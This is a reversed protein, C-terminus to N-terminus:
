SQVARRLAEAAIRVATTRTGHALRGPDLTSTSALHRDYHLRVAGAGVDALIAAAGSFDLTKRTHPSKVTFVVVSRAILHGLGSGAVLDLARGASRAGDPTAPTALVVAHAGALVTRQLAGRMGSGCDIITVGFFRSLPVANHEYIQPTLPSDGLRGRNAPLVWLRESAPTLYPEIDEFSRAGALAEQVDALAHRHRVGLRLPLSGLDPDVDVALVRDRRHHAFVLALLAALTSKGSGGRMGVVAIRRGTTVPRQVDAADEALGALDEAPRFV